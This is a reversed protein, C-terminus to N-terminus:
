GILKPTPPKMIANYARNISAMRATAVDILDGPVGRAILRDPHHEAVLLRYVRRVEAPDADPSLGLVMYPDVGAELMVHQAAMQEFRAEDFGFIM